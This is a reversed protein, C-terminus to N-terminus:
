PTAPAVDIMEFDRYTMNETVNVGIKVLRIKKNATDCGIATLSDKSPSDEPTRRIDSYM